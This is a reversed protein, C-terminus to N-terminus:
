WYMTSIIQEFEIFSTSLNACLLQFGFCFLTFFRFCFLMGGVAVLGGWDELRM